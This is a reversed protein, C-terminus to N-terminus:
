TEYFFESFRINLAQNIKTLFKTANDAGYKKEGSWMNHGSPGGIKLM